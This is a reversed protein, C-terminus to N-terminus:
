FSFTHKLHDSLVYVCLTPCHFLVFAYLSSKNILKKILTQQTFVFYSILQEAFVFFQFSFSMCSVSIPLLEFLAFYLHKCVDTKLKAM